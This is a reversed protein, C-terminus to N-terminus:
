DGPVILRTAPDVITNPDVVVNGSTDLSVKFHVLPSTAPDHTVAGNFDFTSLHCPCTFGPPTQDFNVDCQQHTCVSTLAFLGARDRCIFLRPCRFFTATGVAFATSPGGIPQNGCAFDPSPYLNSFDSLAAGNMDAAGDRSSKPSSGCGAAVLTAGGALCFDRRSLKPM